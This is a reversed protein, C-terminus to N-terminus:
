FPQDDPAPTADLFDLFDVIYLLEETDLASPLVENGKADLLRLRFKFGDEMEPAMTLMTIEVEPVVQCENTNPSPTAADWDMYTVNDKPVIINRNVKLLYGEIYAIIDKRLETSRESFRNM